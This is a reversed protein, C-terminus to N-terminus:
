YVELWNAETPDIIINQNVNELKNYFQVHDHAVITEGTWPPM